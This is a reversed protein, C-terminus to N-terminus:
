GATPHTINFYPLYLEADLYEITEIDLKMKANLSDWLFMTQAHGLVTNVRFFFSKSFIPMELLCNCFGNRILCSFVGKFFGLENRKGQCCSNLFSM